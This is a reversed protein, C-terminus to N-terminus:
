MAKKQKMLTRGVRRTYKKDKKKKSENLNRGETIRRIHKGVESRQHIKKDKKKKSAKM